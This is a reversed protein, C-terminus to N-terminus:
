QCVAVLRPAQVSTLQVTEGPKSKEPKSIAGGSQRGVGRRQIPRLAEAPLPKGARTVALDALLRDDLEALANGPGAPVARRWREFGAAVGRRTAEIWRVM